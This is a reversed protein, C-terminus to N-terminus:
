IHILSLFTGKLGLRRLLGVVWEDQESGDDFTLSVARYRGGPFRMFVHSHKM